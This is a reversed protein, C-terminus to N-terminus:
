DWGLLCLEGVVPQIPQDTLQALSRKLSYVFYSHIWLHMPKWWVEGVLQDINVALGAKRWRIRLRHWYHDTCGMQLWLLEMQFQTIGLLPSFCRVIFPFCGGYDKSGIRWRANHPPSSSPPAYIQKWGNHRSLDILQGNIRGRSTRFLAPLICVVATKRTSTKTRQKVATPHLQPSKIHKIVWVRVCM